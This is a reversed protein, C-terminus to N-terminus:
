SYCPAMLNDNCSPGGTRHLDPVDLYEVSGNICIRGFIPIRRGSETLYNSAFEGVVVAGFDVQLTPHVECMIGDDGFDCVEHIQPERGDVCQIFEPGETNGSGSNSPWGISGVPERRVM